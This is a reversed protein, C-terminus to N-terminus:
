SFLWFFFLLIDDIYFVGFVLMFCIVVSYYAYSIPLSIQNYFHISSHTSYDSSHLFRMNQIYFYLGVFLLLFLFFYLYALKQNLLLNVLFLKTLFGTFPPVGAVSFICLSLIFLSSSHLNFGALSNLTKNASIFISSLVWFILILSVNYIFMYAYLYITPTFIDSYFLM